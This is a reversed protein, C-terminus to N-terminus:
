QPKIVTLVYKVTRNDGKTTSAAALVDFPALYPKLETSYKADPMQKALPEALTRIAALDVFVSSANSTGVRAMADRYRAQDALSSGSKVDVISKVRAPGAGIIVVGGQDTFSLQANGTLPSGAVATSGGMLKNIDGFDVTTITGSGYAEEKVSVGASASGLALLNKIQANFQDAKKTDTPVIVLGGGPTTGDSTVVIGVDGIWGIANDIGGILKAAQDVQEFGKAFADQKKLRAIEAQILPGTDHAELLVLTTAPM